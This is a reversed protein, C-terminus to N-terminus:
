IDQYSFRANATCRPSDCRSRFCEQQARFQSSSTGCAPEGTRLSLDGTQLTTDSKASSPAHDITAAYHRAIIAFGASRSDGRVARLGDTLRSPRRQSDPWPLHRPTRTLSSPHPM